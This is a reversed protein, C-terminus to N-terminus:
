EATKVKLRQGNIEKCVAMDHQFAVAHCCM